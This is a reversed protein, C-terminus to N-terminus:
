RLQNDDQTKKKVFFLNDDQTLKARIPKNEEDLKIIPKLQSKIKMRYNMNM